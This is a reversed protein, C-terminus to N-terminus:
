RGRNRLIGVSGDRDAIGLDLWGDRDLDALVLRFPQGGVGVNVPAAFAGDGRNRLFQVIGGPERTVLLDVDGDRDVDGAVVASGTVDIGVPSGFGNGTSRLVTLRAPSGPTLLALDSRRDGNFDACVPIADASAAVATTAVVAEAFTVDARGRLLVVPSVSSGTVVVLDDWGDGTVDGACAQGANSFSTQHDVVAVLEGDSSRSSHVLLAFGAPREHIAVVDASGDVDFDSVVLARGAGDFPHTTAIGPGQSSGRWVHLASPGLVIIDDLGDRSVDAVDVARQEAPATLGGFPQFTADGVGRLLRIEEWAPALLLVDLAGDADFDGADVGPPNTRGLGYRAGVAFGSWAAPEVRRLITAHWDHSPHTTLRTTAGTVPHMTHVEYDLDVVGTFLILGDPTWSISGVQRAFPFERFGTGDPRVVGIGAPGTTGSRFAILSGDPSWAPMSESGVLDPLVQTLGSGNANMTWLRTTGSRNSAIAITSGDPSWTPSHDFLAANPLDFTIQTGGGGDAEFIWIDHVDDDTSLEVALRTGDPSWAVDHVTRGDAIISRRDGGDRDMTWLQYEEDVTERIWALTSGDPSPMVRVADEPLGTLPAVYSGDSSMSFFSREGARSLTEVLIAWEGRPVEPDDPRRPSTSDSCAAAVLAAFLLVRSRM